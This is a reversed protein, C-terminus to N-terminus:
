GLFRDYIQYVRAPAVDGKSVLIKGCAGTTEKNDAMPRANGPERGCILPGDVGHDGNAVLDGM